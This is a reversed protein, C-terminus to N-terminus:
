RTEQRPMNQQQGAPTRPMKRQQKGEAGALKDQLQQAKELHKQM